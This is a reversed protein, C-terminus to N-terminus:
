DEPYEYVGKIVKRLTLIDVANLRGNMDVDSGPTDAEVGKIVRLLSYVDIASIVGDGNVDGHIYTNKTVIVDHAPVVFSIENSTTDEIEVGEVTWGTFVHIRGMEDDMFKGTRLTVTSGIEYYTAFGDVIVSAFVADGIEYGFVIDCNLLESNGGHIDIQSWQEETGAYYVTELNECGSFAGSCILQMDAPIYVAKLGSRDYGYGYGMECYAEFAHSSISLTGDKIYVTKDESMDGKYTYLSTGLYVAGESQEDLWKTEDFAHAGIAVLTDPMKIDSLNECGYFALYSISTVSAPIEVSSLQTRYFAASDILEVNGGIEVKELGSNAFASMAIEKISNGVVAKKLSVCNEFVSSGIYKINDHLEIAELKSCNRFARDGIHEIHEPIEINVLGDCSDFEGNTISFQNKGIPIYELSDCNRFIEEDFYTVSDPINITKLSTCNEFANWGIETINDTLVANVLSTCGLMYEGPIWPQNAGLPVFELSTCGAFISNGFYTTTDPINIDTLSECYAFASREIAMLGESLAVTRLKANNSFAAYPIYDLGSGVELTEAQTEVFCEEGIWMVNDPIVISKLGSRYFAKEWIELLEGNFDISKLAACDSFAYNEISVLKEPLIVSALNPCNDFTAYAINTVNPSIVVGTLDDCGRFAGRFIVEVTEPMVYDGSVTKDTSIIATKDKNYTVGNETVFLDSDPSFIFEVNPYLQINEFKEITLPMEYTSGKAAPYAIFESVNANFLVGDVSTFYKNDESVNIANLNGTGGGLFATPDIVEAGSGINIEKVGFCWEFAYNGIFKVSDPITITNIDLMREGLYYIGVVPMGHIESPIVVDETHESSNYSEWGIIYIGDSEVIYDFQSPEVISVEIEYEVNNIYVSATYKNGPLWQNSYTQDSSYSIEGEYDQVSIINTTGDKYYLKLETIAAAAYFYEYEYENGFEDYDYRTNSDHRYVLPRTSYIEIREVPDEVINVFFSGNAGLYNLVVEYSNGVTWPNYASQGGVYSISYRDLQWLEKTESTGDKYNIKVNNILDSPQYIFYNVEEGDFYGWEWYGHTHEVIDFDGFVEISEVPSEIINVTYTCSIGKYTVTIEYSNGATWRNEYSQDETHSDYDIEWLGLEESTGDKYNVVIYELGANSYYVNYDGLYEGNEDFYPEKHSETGEVIDFEGKAEISKINSEVINIYYTFTAGRYSVTVPYTGGVSWQNEYDQEYEFRMAEGFWGDEFHGDKYTIRFFDVGSNPYYFFYKVEGIGDVYEYEFSGNTFEEYDLDGIPEISVVDTEIISVSYICTYGYCELVFEYSRGASWQNYYNQSDVSYLNYSDISELSVREIRGDKYNIVVCDIGIDNNYHFYEPTRSDTEWDWDWTWWGNTGEVVEFSGEVSIYAIPNETINIYYTCEAGCYYVTVPYSNGPMWQNDADQEFEVRLGDGEIFREEVSGDTYTIRFYDLGSMVSYDFYEVREGYENYGYNWGGHTCEAYDFNGVAEISAINSELINITYECTIGMYNLTCDYSNGASWQNHYNHEPREIYCDDLDAFYHEESHGDKYNVRVKNVGVNYYYLFYDEELYNGEEDYYGYTEWYGNTGEIIDKDGIAEISAVPNEVININVTTTVGKYNITIPYTNGVTWISGEGQWDGEIGLDRYEPCYRESTGDKYNVILEEFGQMFSYIYYEHVDGNDDIYSHWWGHTNEVYDFDGVVEISAINTETVSFEFECVADRYRVVIRYSNGATWQNYYDQEYDCTMEDHLYDVNVVYGDEYTM